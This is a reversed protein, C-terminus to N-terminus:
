CTRCRRACAGTARPSSWRSRAPRPSRATTRRDRIKAALFKQRLHPRAAEALERPDDTLDATGRRREHAPLARPDRRPQPRSRPCSSTRSATTGSSSTMKTLDTEWAHIGREALYENLQTEETTISKAKVVETAGHAAILGAVTRNAEEADRAWHVVGGARGVSAELELLHEDLHRLAREKIARGAERLEQWDPLEAVVRERKARITQTAHGINHRLQTDALAGRAADPFPVSPGPAHADALPLAVPGSSM